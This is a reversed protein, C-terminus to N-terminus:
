NEGPPQRLSYIDKLLFFAPIHSAEALLRRTSAECVCSKTKSHGHVCTAAPWLQERSGYLNKPTDPKSFAPGDGQTNTHPIEM